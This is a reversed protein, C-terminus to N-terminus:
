ETVPEAGENESAGRTRGLKRFLSFCVLAGVGCALSWGIVVRQSFGSPTSEYVFWPSAPLGITLRRGPEGESVFYRSEFPLLPLVLLVSCVLLLTRLLKM